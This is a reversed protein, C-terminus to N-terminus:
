RIRPDELAYRTLHALDVARGIAASAVNWAEDHRGALRLARGLVTATHVPDDYNRRPHFQTETWGVGRYHIPPGAPVPTAALAARLEEVADAPQGGAVLLEARAARVHFPVEVGANVFRTVAAQLAKFARGQDGKGLRFYGEFSSVYARFLEAEGQFRATDALGEPLVPVLTAEALLELLAFRRDDILPQVVRRWTSLEDWTYIGEFGYQLAELCGAVAGDVDGAFAKAAAEHIILQYGDPALGRAREIAAVGERPEDLQIRFWSRGAWVMASDPARAATAVALRQAERYQPRTPELAASVDASSGSTLAGSQLLSMGQAKGARMTLAMTERLMAVATAEVGEAHEESDAIGVGVFLPYIKALPAPDHLLLEAHLEHREVGGGARTFTEHVWTGKIAGARTWRTRTRDLANWSTEGTPDAARRALAVALEADAAALDSAGPVRSPTEPPPAPARALARLAAPVDGLAVHARGRVREAEDLLEKPAGAMGEGDLLELAKAPQEHIVALRAAILRDVWRRRAERERHTGPGESELEAEDAAEFEFGVELARNLSKRADDVRGGRHHAAALRVHLPGASAGRAIAIEVLATARDIEPAVGSRVARVLARRALAVARGRAGPVSAATVLAAAETERALAAAGEGRAAALEADLRLRAARPRRGATAPPRKLRRIARRAGEEDAGDLLCSVAVVAGLPHGADDELVRELEALALDHRGARWWALARLSRRDADGLDDGRADATALAADVEGALTQAGIAIRRAALAVTADLGVARQLMEDRRSPDRQLRADSAVLALLARARDAARVAPDREVAGLLPAGREPGVADTLAEGVVLRATAALEDLTAPALSSEGALFAARDVADDEAGLGGPGIAREAAALLESGTAGRLIAATAGARELQRLVASVRAPTPAAGGADPGLRAELPRRVVDAAAAATELAELDAPEGGAQARDAEECAHALVAFAAEAAAVEVDLQQQIRHAEIAGGVWVAIGVSAVIGVLIGAAVGAVVRARRTRVWRWPSFISSLSGTRASVAEGALWKELDAALEAATAYRREPKKALAKLCVADLERPCGERVRSPPVPPENLVDVILAFTEKGSFPPKGTLVHYLIAGTGYVDAAAGVSETSTGRSVQEPAMYAPTGLFEGTRTLRDAAADFALGFDVVRPQGSAEIIVNEPKLDRHVVEYGHAHHVARAITAVLEAAARPPLPGRELEDALSRGEVLEMACWPIGKEVGFAHVRVIGPHDDIRALVEAERQFRAFARESDDGEIRSSLIVKLAYPAGTEAHRARFVVGGGGRGITDDVIYAGFRQGRSGRM